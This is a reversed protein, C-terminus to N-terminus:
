SAPQTLGFTDITLTGNLVLATDDLELDGGGSTVTISGDMRLTDGSNRMRFWGATGSVTVTASWTGNKAMVGASAAAFADAPLSITCLLTGSAADNASSPQSGSYVEIVGSNFSDGAAEIIASRQADNLKITM